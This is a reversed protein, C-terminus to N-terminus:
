LEPGAPGLTGGTESALAQRGALLAEVATVSALQVERYPCPRDELPGVNGEV